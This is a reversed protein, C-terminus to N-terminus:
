YNFIEVLLGSNDRLYLTDHDNNWVPTSNNWYFSNETDTGYGSFLFIEKNSGLIYYKFEYIKTASDKITWGGININGPSENKIIVYEGNLNENDNGPADWNLKVSILKLGKVAAQDGVGVEEYENNEELNEGIYFSSTEWLGLNNEMAYRQAKLFQDAYKIDPAVSFINAFGRKVMELNVFLDGAFVYRLFRGYKDTDTIDQELYVKCRDIM